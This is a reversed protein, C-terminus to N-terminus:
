RGCMAAKNIGLGFALTGVLVRKEGSMWAEQNKQRAGHGDPRSLRGRAARSQSRSRPRSGGGQHDARLRDRQRGRLLRAGRSCRMRNARRANMFWMDCIRGIFVAIFKAPDRLSLQAVIDHRVASPPAPRSRRSRVNRFGNASRASSATNPGSSTDGSPFAIRKTSPSFDWRCAAEALRARRGSGAKRAFSVAAPLRGAAGSRM